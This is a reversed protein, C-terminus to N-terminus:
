GLVFAVRQLTPCAPRRGGAGEGLARSQHELAGGALRMGDDRAFQAQGLLCVTPLHRVRNRPWRRSPNSSSGRGPAGRRIVSASTSRTRM